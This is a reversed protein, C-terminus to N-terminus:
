RWGRPYQRKMYERAEKEARKWAWRRHWRDLWMFGLFAVALVGISIAAPIWIETMAM